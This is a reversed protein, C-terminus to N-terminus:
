RHTQAYEGIVEGDPAFLASLRRRREVYGAVLPVRHGRALRAFVGRGATRPFGFPVVVLKSGKAVARRFFRTFNGRSADERDLSLVAVAIGSENMTM